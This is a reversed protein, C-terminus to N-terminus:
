KMEIETGAISLKPVSFLLFWADQNSNNDFNDRLGFCYSDEVEIEKLTQNKQDSKYIKIKFKKKEHPSLLWSVLKDDSVPDIMITMMASRPGAPKGSKDMDRCHFLKMAKLDHTENDIIFDANFAM